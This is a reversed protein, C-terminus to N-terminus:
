HAAAGRYANLIDVRNIIGVIRKSGKAAMVPIGSVETSGFIGLAESAPSDPYLVTPNTDAADAAIIAEGVGGLTLVGRLDRTSVVGFLHDKKDVVAFVDDESHSFADIMNELNDNPGVRTFEKSMISKVPVNALPDAQKALVQEVNFGSRLLPLTYVSGQALLSSLFASVTVTLMLPMVLRYDAGSIEYIILFGAWPIHLASTVAGAMGVLAFVPIAPVAGPFALQCLSGFGAGMAAGSVMAPAFAGGTGGSGLTLSTVLIKIFAVFLFMLAAMFLATGGGAFAHEGLINERVFEYGEGLVGPFALGVLGVCLGGVAPKLWVPMKMSQFLDHTRYLCFVLLGGGIGTLVGLLLFMLFQMASPDITAMFQDSVRPFVPSNPLIAESTVSAVVSAIVVPTFTKVTFDRMLLELALFVGGIPANFVGAIGAAAGAGILTGVREKSVQGERGIISGVVSGIEIIPGEPGGSGGSTITIVSSSSKIAMEPSLRVNGTAVAKIVSPVGHGGRLKLIRYILLGVILGGAAPLLARVMLLLPTDAQGMEGVMTAGFFIEHSVLILYRFLACVGGMILGLVIALVFVYLQEGNRVRQIVRHHLMRVFRRHPLSESRILDAFTMPPRKRESTEENHQSESAM